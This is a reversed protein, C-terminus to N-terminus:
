EIDERGGIEKGNWFEEREQASFIPPEITEFSDIKVLAQTGAKRHSHILVWQGPELGNIGVPLDSVPLYELVDPSWTRNNFAIFGPKNTAVIEAMDYPIEITREPDGFLPEQPKPTLDTM